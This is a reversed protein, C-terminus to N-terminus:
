WEDWARDLDLVAVMRPAVGIAVEAAGSRPTISSVHEDSGRYWGAASAEPGKM